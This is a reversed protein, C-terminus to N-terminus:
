QERSLDIIEKVTIRSNKEKEARAQARVSELVKMRERTIKGKHKGNKKKM